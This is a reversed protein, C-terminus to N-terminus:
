HSKLIIETLESVVLFRGLFNWWPLVNNISHPSSFYGPFSVSTYQGLFWTLLTNPWPLLPTKVLPPSYCHQTNRSTLYFFILLGNSSIGHFDQVSSRYLQKSPISHHGHSFGSQLAYLIKPYSSVPIKIISLGQLVKGHFSSLIIM